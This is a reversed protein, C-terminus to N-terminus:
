PAAASAARNATARWAIAGAAALMASALLFPLGSPAASGAV